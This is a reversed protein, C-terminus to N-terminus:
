FFFVSRKRGGQKSSILAGCLGKLCNFEGAGKDGPGVPLIASSTGVQSQLVAKFTAHVRLTDFGFSRKNRM